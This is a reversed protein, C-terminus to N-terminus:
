AEVVFGAQVKVPVGPLGRTAPGRVLGGDAVKFQSNHGPCQMIEAGPEPPEVTVGQHPCRARFAKFMGARPQVVIITDRILVGGGVPVEDVAVLTDVPPVDGGGGDTPFPNVTEPAPAPPATNVTQAAPEGDAEGGCGTLVSLGAVGALGALGAGRLLARRMVCVEFGGEPPV